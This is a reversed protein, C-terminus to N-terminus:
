AFNQTLSVDNNNINFTKIKELKRSKEIEFSFIL